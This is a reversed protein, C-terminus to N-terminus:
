RSLSLYTVAGSGERKNKEKEIPGEVQEEQEGPLSGTTLRLKDAARAM